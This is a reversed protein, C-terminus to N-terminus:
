EWDGSIGICSGQRERFAFFAQLQRKYVDLHTYSVTDWAYGYGFGRAVSELRVTENVPNYDGEFLEIIQGEKRIELAQDGTKVVSCNFLRNLGKLPAFVQRKYM